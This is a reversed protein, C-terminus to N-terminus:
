VGPASRRYEPDYWLVGDPDLDRNRPPNEFVKHLAILQKRWYKFDTAQCEHVRGLELIQQDVDSPLFTHAIWQKTDIDHSPFLLALTNLTEAALGSPLIGDQWQLFSAHHFVYLRKRNRSLRLHDALNDTWAIEVGAYRQLNYATFDEEFMLDEQANTLSEQFHLELLDRLPLSEDQWALSHQNTHRYPLPGIDIMTLLRAVLMISGELMNNTEEPTRQQSLSHRLYKKIALKTNHERLMEAVAQIDTHSRVTAYQGKGSQIAVRCEEMYYDFYPDWCLDAAQTTTPTTQRWLRDLIELRNSASWVPSRPDEKSSM